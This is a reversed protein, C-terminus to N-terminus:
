FLQFSDLDPPNYTSNLNELAVFNKIGSYRGLVTGRLKSVLYRTLIKVKLTIVPKFLRVLHFYVFYLGNFLTNVKM